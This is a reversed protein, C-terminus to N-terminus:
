GFVKSLILVALAALGLPWLGSLLAIWFYKQLTEVFGHTVGFVELTSQAIFAVIATLWWGAIYVVKASESFHFEWKMSMADATVETVADVIGDIDAHYRSIYGDANLNYRGDSPTITLLFAPMQIWGLPAGIIVLLKADTEKIRISMKGGISRKFIYLREKLPAFASAADALRKREASEVAATRASEVRAKEAIRREVNKLDDNM